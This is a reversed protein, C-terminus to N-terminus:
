GGTDTCILIIKGRKPHVAWVFKLWVGASKWLMVETYVMLTVKSEGYVPSPMQVFQSQDNFIDHLHVKEGYIRPRGRRGHLLAPSRYAVANSRVRSILHHGDKVFPQIVKRSAYYADAILILPGSFQQAVTQRFMDVLRDVITKKSRNSYTIGDCIRSVIPVAVTGGASTCLSSIVQYFHGMIYEPKSNNDSCCHLKKVAPMKKGEKAINLGDVVFARYKEGIICPTFKKQVIMSWATTLANLNVSTSNFFHILRHYCRDKLWSSRMFSSVGMGDPRVCMAFIAVRMWFFAALRTCASKLPNVFEFAIHWITM